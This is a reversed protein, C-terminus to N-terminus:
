RIFVYWMCVIVCVILFAGMGRTNRVEKQMDIPEMRWNILSYFKIQIGIARSPACVLFLGLCASCAAIVVILIRM